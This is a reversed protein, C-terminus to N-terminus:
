GIVEYTVEVGGVQHTVSLVKVPRDVAGFVLHVDDDINLPSNTLETVTYIRREVGWMAVYRDRVLASHGANVVLSRILPLDRATPHSITPEATQYPSGVVGEASQAARAAADELGPLFSTAPSWNRSHEVRVRWCPPIITTLACSQVSSGDLRRAPNTVPPELVGVTVRGDRLCTWWGHVGTVAEDLLDLLNVPQRAYYGVPWPSSARLTAFADADLAGSASDEVESVLLLGDGTVLLAAGDTVLPVVGVAQTVAEAILDATSYTEWGPAAVDARVDGDVDGGLKFRGENTLSIYQDINSPEPYPVLVRPLGGIRVATTVASKTAVRYIRSAADELVPEVSFTRGRQWPVPQGRIGEPATDPYTQSAIARDLDSAIDSFGISASAHDHTLDKVRGVFEVALDEYPTVDSAGSLIRVPRGIWVDDMWPYLAANLAIKIEGGAFIDRTRECYAGVGMSTTISVPGAICPEYQVRLGDVTARYGVNAMRRWVPQGGSYVQAEAIILPQAPM